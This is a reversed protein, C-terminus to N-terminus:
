CIIQRCRYRQLVGEVRWLRESLRRWHVVIVIVVVNLILIVMVVLIIM